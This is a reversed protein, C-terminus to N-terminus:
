YGLTARNILLGAMREITTRELEVVQDVLKVMPPTTATGAMVREVVVVMPMGTELVHLAAM